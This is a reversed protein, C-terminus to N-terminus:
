CRLDDIPGAIINHKNREKPWNNVNEYLRFFRLGTFNLLLTFFEHSLMSCLSQTTGIKLKIHNMARPNM